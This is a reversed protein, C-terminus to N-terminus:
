TFVFPKTRVLVCLPVAQSVRVTVCLCLCVCVHVCVSVYLLSFCFHMCSMSMLM